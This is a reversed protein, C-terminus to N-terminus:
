DEGSWDLYQLRTDYDYIHSRTHITTACISSLSHKTHKTLIRNAPEIRCTKFNGCPTYYFILLFWFMAKFLANLSSFSASFSPRSIFTFLIFYLIHTCYFYLLSTAILYVIKHKQVMRQLVIIYYIGVFHV